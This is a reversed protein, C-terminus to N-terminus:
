RYNNTVDLVQFKIEATRIFKRGDTVTNGMADSSAKISDPVYANRNESANDKQNNNCSICFLIIFIFSLTRKM